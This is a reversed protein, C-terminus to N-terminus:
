RRRTRKGILQTLVEDVRDRLNQGTERLHDDGGLFEAACEERAPDGAVGPSSSSATRRSHPRSPAPSPREAFTRCRLRPFRRMSHLPAPGAVLPKTGSLRCSTLAFQDLQKALVFPRSTSNLSASVLSAETVSVFCDFGRERVRLAAMENESDRLLPCSVPSRRRHELTSLTCFRTGPRRNRCGSLILTTRHEPPVACARRIPCSEDEVHGLNMTRLLRNEQVTVNATRENAAPAAVYVARVVLPVPKEDVGRGLTRVPLRDVQIRARREVRIGDPPVPCDILCPRPVAGVCRERVGVKQGLHAQEDLM